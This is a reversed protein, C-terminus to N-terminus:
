LTLSGKQPVQNSFLQTQSWPLRQHSYRAVRPSQYLNYMYKFNENYIRM